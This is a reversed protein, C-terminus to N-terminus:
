SSERHAQWYKMGAYALAVLTVMAAVFVGRSGIKALAYGESRLFAAGFGSNGVTRIGAEAMGAELQFYTFIHSALGAGAAVGAIQLGTKADAREAQALRTDKAMTPASVAPIRDTVKPLKAASVQATGTTATLAM